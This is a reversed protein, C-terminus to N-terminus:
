LLSISFCRHSFDPLSERRFYNIIESAKQINNIEGTENNTFILSILIIRGNFAEKLYKINARGGKNIPLRYAECEEESMKEAVKDVAGYEADPTIFRAPFDADSIGPRRIHKKDM